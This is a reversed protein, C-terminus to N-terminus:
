PRGSIQDERKAAAGELLDILAAHQKQKALDLASGVGEPRYDVDFGRDLLYKAFEVDELEVAAHILTPSGEWLNLHLPLGHEILLRYIEVRNERPGLFLGNTVEKSTGDPMQVPGVHFLREISAGKSLLYKCAEVNGQTVRKLPAVITRGEERNIQFGKALMKDAIDFRRAGLAFMFTYWADETAMDVDHELLLEVIPWNTKAWQGSSATLILAQQQGLYFVGAMMEQFAMFPRSKARDRDRSLLMLFPATTNPDTGADLMQKVREVDGAIVAETIEPVAYNWRWALFIGVGVLLLGITWAAGRFVRRLKVM